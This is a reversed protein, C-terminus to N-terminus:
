IQPDGQGRANVKLKQSGQKVEIDTDEHLRTLLQHAQGTMRFGAATEQHVPELRHILGQIVGQGINQRHHQKGLM